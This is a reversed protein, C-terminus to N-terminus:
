QPLVNDGIFTVIAYASLIIILGGIAAFILQKATKV